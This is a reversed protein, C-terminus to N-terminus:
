RGGPLRSPTLEGADAPGVTGRRLRVAARLKRTMPCARCSLPTSGANDRNCDEVDIALQGGDPITTTIWGQCTRSGDRPDIAILGISGSVDAVDIHVRDGPRGTIVYGHTAGIEIRRTLPVGCSLPEAPQGAAISCLLMQAVVLVPVYV